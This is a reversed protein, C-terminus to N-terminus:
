YHPPGSFDWGGDLFSKGEAGEDDMFCKVIDM